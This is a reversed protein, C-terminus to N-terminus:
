LNLWYNLKLVLARNKNKFLPDTFYNDTYVVFLDSAPKYRWQLRSNINVNNAQTNYQLFNTWFLKNSFNVEVRPSILFLNESSYPAPLTVKNYEANLEFTFYPQNRYIARATIRNLTGNYFGGGTYSAGYAFKGRSDSLYNVSAQRFNYKAAPLPIGDTFEIPIALTINNHEITTSLFATNKFGINYRLKVNYETLKNKDDTAVFNQLDINHQNIKGKKPFFNRRNEMFFTNFGNRVVSDTGGFKSAIREVFGMDTYYNKGVHTAEIVTKFLKVNYEGGYIIFNNKNTITPKMSTHFGAWAIYKGTNSTYTFETGANRGYKDITNSLKNKDTYFGDRNLIYGSVVSRKLVQRNISLATYNQAAYDKTAATQMNLFSTRTKTSLNGSLRAGAIIPVSQGNPTLGITRSYFPRIPDNGYNTILDSNELFFNRREPFFISFRSLNTVQRDVDVQSFDPNVTLDMNLANTIALKADLGANFKGNINKTTLNNQTNTQNIYPIAVINAGNSPPAKDWKLAGLYGINTGRFNVPIRTWTHFENDKRCSRIFNIGWTLNNSNYRLVKFPIAIEVTFSDEYQKTESYWKADWSYTLDEEGTSILDDAQVNFATVSFYFGNTKKNIPDIVLTVGDNERIRSDRKLSQGIFPKKDYVTIGFYIAKKDYCTRVVTQKKPHYDDKPFKMWFNSAADQTQWAADNLVGDLKIESTKEFIPLVYEKQYNAVDITQSFGKFGAIITFFLFLFRSM